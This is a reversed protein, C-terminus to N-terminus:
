KKGWSDLLAERFATLESILTDIKKLRSEYTSHKSYSFDITAAKYCDTIRVEADSKWPAPEGYSLPGVFWSVTAHEDHRESLFVKNGKSIQKCTNMCDGYSTFM